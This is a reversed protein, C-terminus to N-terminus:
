ASRHQVNYIWHILPPFRHPSPSPGGFNSTPSPGHMRGEMNQSATNTPLSFFHKSGFHPFLHKEQSSNFPQKRYRVFYLDPCTEAVTIFEYFNVSNSM